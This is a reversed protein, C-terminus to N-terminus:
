NPWHLGGVNFKLMRNGEQYFRAEIMLSSSEKLKNIFRPSNNIIVADSRERSQRVIMNIPASNDFKFRWSVYESPVMFQGNSITLIAVGKEDLMIMGTSGGDYPPDFEVVNNSELIAYKSVKGTMEDEDNVFQWDGSPPKVWEKVLGKLIVSQRGNIEVHYGDDALEIVKVPMRKGDTLILTDQAAIVTGTLIMLVLLTYKM